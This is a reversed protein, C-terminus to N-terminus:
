SSHQEVLVKKEEAHLSKLKISYYISFIGLALFAFATWFVLSLGAFLPNWLLIFSFITGALGIVLLNGWDLVGHNKLEISAGIAAISRFLVVFGVYFPLVTMSIEPNSLMLVGVLLNIVGFTLTWGWNNLERKNSVAFIIEFIGSFLFSLSFILTLTLYAQLPTAFVWVGIGVFILGVLLPIYWYKVSTKEHKFFQKKMYIREKQLKM